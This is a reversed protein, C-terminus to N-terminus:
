DLAMGKRAVLIGNCGEDENEDKLDGLAAISHSRENRGQRGDGDPHHDPQLEFLLSRGFDRIM